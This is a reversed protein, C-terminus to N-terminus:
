PVLVVKGVVTGSEALRVAEGVETLPVRAAVQPALAGAALLAFVETLDARLRTRFTGRRRHGAWINYFHAGKGNPLANWLMLRAFLKLVPAKSSGQVDRTSATGYSVLGGKAALLDYSTVIGDGGVHDFVADYGQPAHARLQEALDAARYDVPAAGLARVADHHKASATGVVRAGALRALQALTSGVGGNAGHVLVAHGPRVRALRHLMQWATIGNVVFTEADASDVADPVETLDGAEVAVHSAWAGTKTLAAFRRGLLDGPVGAGVEVARGVLDYGPVFPFPPQDFYKGRRMQQEAFSVGAAEMALVVQGPGAPRHPRTRVQIGEPEVVGPLVAETVTPTNVQSEHM